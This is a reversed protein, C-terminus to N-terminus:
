RAFTNIADTFEQTDPVQSSWYKSLVIGHLSKSSVIKDDVQNDFFDNVGIVKWGPIQFLDGFMVVVKSGFLGQFLEVRRRLFGGIAIGDTFFFGISLIFSFLLYSSFGITVDSNTLVEYSELFM